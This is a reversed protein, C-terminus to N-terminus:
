QYRRYREQVGFDIGNRTLILENSSNLQVNAVPNFPGEFIPPNQPPYLEIFNGDQRFHDYNESKWPFNQDFQFSSDAHFHIIAQKGASIPIWNKDPGGPVIYNNTDTLIWSGVLSGSGTNQYSKKCSGMFLIAFAM